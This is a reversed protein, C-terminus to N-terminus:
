SAIILSMLSIYVPWIDGFSVYAGEVPAPPPTLFQLERKKEATEPVNQSKLLQLNEQTFFKYFEPPPPFASSLAPGGNEQEMSL